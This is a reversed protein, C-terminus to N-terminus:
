LINPDERAFLPISEEYIRILAARNNIELKEMIHLRHSEVTRGSIFLSAAMQQNTMGKAMLSCVEKERKTLKEFLEISKRNQALSNANSHIEIEPDIFTKGQYVERIAQLMVDSSSSKLLYGKVGMQFLQQAYMDNKYMTLVIINIKNGEAELRKAVDFGTMGPMNIDLLFIDLDKNAQLLALAEEGSGACSEVHMDPEKDLLAVIGSRFLNHDDVIMIRIEPLKKKLSFM